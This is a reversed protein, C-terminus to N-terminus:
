TGDSRRRVWRLFRRVGNYSLRLGGISMAPVLVFAVFDVASTAVALALFGLVITLSIRFVPGRLAPLGVDVSEALQWWVFMSAPFALMMGAILPALPWGESRFAALGVVAVAVM